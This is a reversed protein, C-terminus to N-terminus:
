NRDSKALRRELLKQVQTLGIVVVLYLFAAIFLPEILLTKSKGREAIKTLEVVAISGAVSTEKILSIFENFLSPVINKFAQPIVIKLMTQNASLGLSRGAETQGIDVSNLGARFIESVYAGSNIGFGVMAAEIGGNIAVAYLILLQLLVPTGRIVTTYVNALANLIRLVWGVSKEKKEETYKHKIVAIVLGIAIGMLTAVLSIILTTKLGELYNIWQNEKFLSDYFGQLSINM